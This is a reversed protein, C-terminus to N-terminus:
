ESTGEIIKKLDENNIAIANVRPHSLLASVVDRHGRESAVRIAENDQASPDAGKNILMSVLDSHGNAAAVRFPQSYTNTYHRHSVSYRIAVKTKWIM